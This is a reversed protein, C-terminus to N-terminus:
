FNVLSKQFFFVTGIAAVFDILLSEVEKRSIQLIPPVGGQREALDSHVEVFGSLIGERHVLPLRPHPYNAVNRGQMTAFPRFIIHNAVNQTQKTAIHYQPPVDPSTVPSQRYRLRAIAANLPDFASKQRRKPGNQLM